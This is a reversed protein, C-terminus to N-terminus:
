DGEWEDYCGSWVDAGGDLGGYRVGVPSEWRRGCEGGREEEATRRIGSEDGSGSNMALADTGCERFFFMM